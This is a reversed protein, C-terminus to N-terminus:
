GARERCMILEKTKGICGGCEQADLILPLGVIYWVHFTADPGGWIDKNVNWVNEPGRM